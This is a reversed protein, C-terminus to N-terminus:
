SPRSMSLAPDEGSSNRDDLPHLRVEEKQRLSTVFEDFLIKREQDNRPGQWADAFKESMARTAREFSWWSKVGGEYLVGGGVKELAKHFDKRSKNLSKETEARELERHERLYEEFADKREQLTKLAKYLPDTIAEKMVMEWTWTEDVQMQKLMGKFAAQAQEPTDFTVVPVITSATASSSAAAAAAAAAAALPIQPLGPPRPPLSSMGAGVLAGSQPTMTMPSASGGAAPAVHAPVPSPVPGPTSNSNSNNFRALIDVIERPCNWTTENSDKNVWYKRGGTEYEKWPTEAGVAREAPTKLEDPKDWM